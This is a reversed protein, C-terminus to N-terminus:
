TLPIPLFTSALASLSISFTAFFAWFATISTVFIASMRGLSFPYIAIYSSSSKINWGLKQSLFPFPLPSGYTPSSSLVLSLCCVVRMKGLKLFLTSKKLMLSINGVDWFGMSSDILINWVTDLTRCSTSWYEMRVWTFPSSFESAM